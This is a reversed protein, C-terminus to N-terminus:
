NLLSGNPFYNPFMNGSEDMNFILELDYEELLDRIKGLEEEAAILNVDAAEGHLRMSKGIGHRGRWNRFWGDSAKFEPLNLDKAFDLARKQILERTLPLPKCRGTPHLIKLFWQYIQEDLEPHFAECVLRRSKLPIKKNEAEKIKEKDRFLRSVVSKSVKYKTVIESQIVEKELEAIILLKDALQLREHKKRKEFRTLNPDLVKSLIAMRIFCM